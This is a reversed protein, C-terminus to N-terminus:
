GAAHSPAKPVRLPFRSAVGGDITLVQGTVYGSAPSALFAVASGVEDPRGLRGMPVAEAMGLTTSNVAAAADTVIVGCAVMNMRVNDRAYELAVSKTFNALGAKSAGYAAAYPSSVLGSISGVSVITGGEGQALFQRLAARVVRFVYGLNM